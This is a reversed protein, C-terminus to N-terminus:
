AKYLIIPKMIANGYYHVQISQYEDGGVVRKQGRKGEQQDGEEKGKKKFRSKL